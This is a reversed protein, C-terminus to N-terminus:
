LLYRDAPIPQDRSSARLFLISSCNEHAMAFPFQALAGRIARAVDIIEERL